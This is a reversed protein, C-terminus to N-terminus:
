KTKQYDCIKNVLGIKKRKELLINILLGSGCNFSSHNFFFDGRTSNHFFFDLHIVLCM